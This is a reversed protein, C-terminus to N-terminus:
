KVVVASRLHVTSLQGQGLGWRGVAGVARLGQWGAGIGGEIQALGRDLAVLARGWISPTPPLSQASVDLWPATFPLNSTLSAQGLPSALPAKAPMALAETAPLAVGPVGPLAQSSIGSGSLGSRGAPFAMPEAAGLLRASFHALGRRLRLLWGGLHSAPTIGTETGPALTGASPLAAWPLGANSRGPLPTPSGGDEAGLLRASFHALGRRLRLLWGRPGPAIGTEGYTTGPGGRQAPPYIPKPPQALATSWSGNQSEPTAGAGRKGQAGLRPWTAAAGLRPWSPAALWGLVRRWGQQLTVQAARVPGSAHWRGWRWGQDVRQRWRRGQRVVFRLLASSYSSPAM